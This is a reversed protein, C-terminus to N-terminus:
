SYYTLVSQHNGRILMTPPLNKTLAELWAMYLLSSVSGKRAVPLSIVILNASRSHEQLLENLRIQRLTKIRTTELEGDSIKWPFQARLREASAADDKQGEHLRFPEVMEDFLKVSEASPKSNIDGLVQIDSFDIRFKSLLTAMMRREHDIRNIKGGIFVRIKCDGWKKKTTLIYPILLTLGGDDFLWWVDITGKGQRRQFQSSGDLLKQDAANLSPVMRPSAAACVIMPRRPPLSINVGEGPVCSTTPEIGVRAGAATYKSNAHREDDDRHSPSTLERARYAPPRPNSGSGRAEGQLQLASSIDFGERVRAVVVGFQLDFADHVAHIYSEVAAGDARRWDKKFGLVLTNPKMRGLGAAQLLVQVGERLDHSCVPSYFAKKHEKLLWRQHKVQAAFLEKLAQRQPGQVVHGCILLGVNKTFCHVLDILAPRHPPAGTMVLCQPRFNKVHEEVGYLRLNDQLANLYSLAQTSSGWNVDPKKYVVYIYLGLVIAYTILAAWWNIVFMVACCLVAGFLSVWMNYYRLRPALREPAGGEGGGGGRPGGGREPAGGEGPSKAFSAHFCSFNILAYSALFFNSIISRHHEAGAILIFALAIFFTLIYGRIPENNKGYGTAFMGIGPYINDKCLALSRVFRPQTVRPYLLGVEVAVDSRRTRAFAAHLPAAAKVACVAVAIYTITTILIALMTGKPIAAQPDALDGSINAGALIGTAAPFFIAFVSFFGEGDRFDPGFNEAFISAKYNFFGQAQKQRSVPIVTGIFFNAIAILLIVLLVVQAKAEWEMGAATIGLLLLVTITGIIRIDNSDDVMVADNVVLLDRVTESFGVVYMAVAVANAFAFILGISGGFEPGLSRSILYYAGGGRVFGNTAIASTSLGTISTVAVALGMILVCLGIGAHGVIWSLRIFLMVGWINLMCRVLVGKIWGFKVIGQQDKPAGKTGETEEQGDGPSEGNGLRELALAGELPDKDMENHLEALTPRLMQEGVLSAANAYFEINPVADLTNHGFTRLYYTNSHSDHAHAGGGLSSDGGESRVTDGNQGGGGLLLQHHHQHPPPPGPQQQQLHRRGGGGDVFNVHHPPGGGRPPGGGPVSRGEEPGRQQQQQEPYGPPDDPGPGSPGGGRHRLEAGSSSSPSSAAIGAAECVVDVHFRGASGSKEM